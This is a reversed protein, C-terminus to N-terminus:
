SGYFILEFDLIEAAISETPYLKRAGLSVQNMMSAIAFYWQTGQDLTVSNSEKNQGTQKIENEHREREWESMYYAVWSTM